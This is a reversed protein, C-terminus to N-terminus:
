TRLIKIIKKPNERLEELAYKISNFHNLKICSCAVNRYLANLKFAKYSHFSTLDEQLVVDKVWHLKNEVAWHQRIVDGLSQATGQAWSSIYLHTKDERQGKVIRIRRLAIIKKLHPWDKQLDANPSYLRSIREEMRGRNKEEWKAEEIWDQQEVCQWLLKTLRKRRHKVQV